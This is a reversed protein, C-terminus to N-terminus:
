LSKNANLCGLKEAFVFHFVTGNYFYLMVNNIYNQLLYKMGKEERRVSLVLERLVDEDFEINDRTM